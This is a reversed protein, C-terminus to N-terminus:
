DMRSMAYANIGAASLVAAFARAYAEKRQMSQGYGSVWIDVGGSYSTRQGKEARLWRAFASTGPKVKIWAFGCVGDAEYYTPKSYDIDSGFPTTPEGVIMAVPTLAKAARDGAADAAKYLAEFGLTKTTATAM